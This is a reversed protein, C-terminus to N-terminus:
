TTGGGAARRRLGSVFDRVAGARADWTRGAVAAASAAALRAALAPDDLVEVLGAALAEPSDPPVLRADVGDTLVERLSPLDSAVIPRGAAM